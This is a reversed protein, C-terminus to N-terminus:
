VVHIFYNNYTYRLPDFIIEKSEHVEGKQKEGWLGLVLLFWSKM